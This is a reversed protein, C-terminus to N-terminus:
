TLMKMVDQLDTQIEEIDEFCFVAQCLPECHTCSVIFLLACSYSLCNKCLMGVEPVKPYCRKCGLRCPAMHMFCSDESFFTAYLM